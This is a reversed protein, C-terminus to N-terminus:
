VNSIMLDQVKVKQLGKLVVRIYSIKVRTYHINNYLSRAERKTM